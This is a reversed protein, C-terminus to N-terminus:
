ELWFEIEGEPSIKIKKARDLMTEIKLTIISTDFLKKSGQISATNTKTAEPNSNKKIMTKEDKRDRLADRISVMNILSPHMNDTQQPTWIDTLYQAFIKKCPVYSHSEKKNSIFQASKNLKRTISVAEERTFWSKGTKRLKCSLRIEDAMITKSMQEEVENDFLMYSNHERLAKLYKNM